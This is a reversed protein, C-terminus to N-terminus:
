KLKRNHKREALVACNNKIRLRSCHLPLQAFTSKEMKNAHWYKDVVIAKQEHYQHKNNNYKKIIKSLKTLGPFNECKLFIREKKWHYPYLSCSDINWTNIVSNCTMLNTKEVM